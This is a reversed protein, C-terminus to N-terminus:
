KEMEKENLARAIDPGEVKVVNILGEKELIKLVSIVVSGLEMVRDELEQMKARDKKDM